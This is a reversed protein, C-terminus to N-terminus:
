PEIIINIKNSFKAKILNKILVKATKCNKIELRVFCNDYCNDNYGKNLGLMNKLHNEDAFFGHMSYKETDNEIFEYLMVALGNCEYINYEYEKEGVKEIWKGIKNEWKWTLM